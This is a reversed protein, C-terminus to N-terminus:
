LIHCYNASSFDPHKIDPPKLDVANKRKKISILKNTTTTTAIMTITVIAIIIIVIIIIM